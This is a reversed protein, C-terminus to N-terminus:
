VKLKSTMFAGSSDFSGEVGLDEKDVTSWEPMETFMKIKFKFCITRAFFLWEM